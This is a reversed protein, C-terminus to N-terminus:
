RLGKMVVSKIDHIKRNQASRIKKRQHVEFNLFRKTKERQRNDCESDSSEENNLDNQSVIFDPDNDSDDGICHYQRTVAM